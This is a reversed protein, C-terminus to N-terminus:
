NSESEIETGIRDLFGGVIASKTCGAYPLRHVPVPTKSINTGDAYRTTESRYNARIRSNWSKITNETTKVSEIYDAHAKRIEEIPGAITKIFEDAIDKEYKLLADIVADSDKQTVYERRQIQSYRSNYMELAAAADAEKKKADQYATLDTRETASKIAEQAAALATKNEAIQKNIAELEEAKKKELGAIRKITEAPINKTNM